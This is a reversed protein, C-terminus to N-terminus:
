GRCQEKCAAYLLADTDAKRRGSPSMSQKKRKALESLQAMLAPELYASLRCKM